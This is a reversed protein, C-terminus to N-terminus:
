LIQHQYDMMEDLALLAMLAKLYQLERLVFETHFNPCLVLVSENDTTTSAHLTLQPVAISTNAPLIGSTQLLHPV